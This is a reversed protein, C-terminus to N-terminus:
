VFGGRGRTKTGTEPENKRKRGEQEPSTEWMEYICAAFGHETNPGTVSKELMKISETIWRSPKNWLRDGLQYILGLKVAEISIDERFMVQTRLYQVIEKWPLKSGGYIKDLLEAGIAQAIDKSGGVQMFELLSRIKEEGKVGDIKDLMNLALRPSGGCYRCIMDEVETSLKIGEKAATTRILEHTDDESLSTFRYHLCRQVLTGILDHPDTTCLIYYVHKPSDELEKLLANQADPTLQHCEDIIVVTTKSGPIRFKTQRILDRIPEIGRFNAANMEIIGANKAGLEKALIRAITTKGIGSKGSFLWAHSIDKIDKKLQRIVSDKVATHGIMEQFSGPRYKTILAM